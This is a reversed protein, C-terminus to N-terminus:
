IIPSIQLLCCQIEQIDKLAMHSYFPQKSHKLHTIYQNKICKSSKMDFITHLFTEDIEFLHLHNNIAIASSYNQKFTFLTKFSKKDFNYKILTIGQYLFLIHKRSFTIIIAAQQSTIMFHSMIHQPYKIIETWKNNPINYQSIADQQLVILTDKDRKIPIAYHKDPLLKLKQWKQNSDAAM